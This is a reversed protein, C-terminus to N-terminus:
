DYKKQKRYTVVLGNLREVVQRIIHPDGTVVVETNNPLYIYVGEANTSPILDPNIGIAFKSM